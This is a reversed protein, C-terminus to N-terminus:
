KATRDLMVQLWLCDQHFHQLLGYVTMLTSTGFIVAQLTRVSELKTLKVAAVFLIAFGLYALLGTRRQYAGFLGTFKVDTTLLDILLALLFIGVLLLSVKEFRSVRGARLDSWINSTIRGILFSGVLLLAWFKVANFPDSASTYFILTVFATGGFLWALVPNIAPSSKNAM